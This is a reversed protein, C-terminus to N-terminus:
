LNSWQSKPIKVTGKKVTEPVNEANTVIKCHKPSIIKERVELDEIDVETCSVVDLPETLYFESLNLYDMLLDKSGEKIRSVIKLIQKLNVATDELTDPPIYSDVTKALRPIQAKITRSLRNLNSSLIISM